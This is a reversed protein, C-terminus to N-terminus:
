IVIRAIVWGGAVACAASLSGAGYGIRMFWLSIGTRQGMLKAPSYQFDQDFEAIRRALENNFTTYGMAGCYMNSIAALLGIGFFVFMWPHRASGTLQSTAITAAGAFGAANVLALHKVTELDWASRLREIREMFVTVAQRTREREVAVSQSNTSNM